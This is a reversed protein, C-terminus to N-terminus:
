AAKPVIKSRLTGHSFFRGNIPLHTWATTGSRTESNSCNGLLRGGHLNGKRDDGETRDTGCSCIGVFQRRPSCGGIEFQGATIAFEVFERIELVLLGDDQGPEGFGEGTASRLFAQRETLVAGRKLLVVQGVERCTTIVDFLVGRKGFFQFQIIRDEAIRATLDRFRVADHMAQTLKGLPPCEDNAAVPFDRVDIALNIRGIM